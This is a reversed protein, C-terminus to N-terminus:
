SHHIRVIIKQGLIGLPHSRDEEVTVQIKGDCPVPPTEEAVPVPQITSSLDLKARIEATTTIPKMPATTTLSQASNTGGKQEFSLWTTLPKKSNRGSKALYCRCQYVASSSTTNTDSELPTKHNFPLNASKKINRTVVTAQTQYLVGPDAVVSYCAYFTSPRKAIKKLQKVMELENQFEIVKGPKFEFVPKSKRKPEGDVSIGHNKKRKKKSTTDNDDELKRKVSEKAKADSKVVGGERIMANTANQLTDPKAAPEIRSRCLTCFIHPLNVMGPCTECKKLGDKKRCPVCRAYPLTVMEPCTKCKRKNSKPAVFSTASANIFEM